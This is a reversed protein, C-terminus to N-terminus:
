PNALLAVFGNIDGFNVTGDLDIDGNLWNCAPYVTYYHAEGALAQVLGNIDGFTVLGDCDLDGKVWNQAVVGWLEVDDINWGPYNASGDTPGMGWRVYVTAQQDAVAALSFVQQSWASDSITTTPNSWITTWSTGNSSAALDAHDFTASEVGLWRWFRLEVGTVAACNLATTTLYYVPMSATYDGTLNYGYANTGTHGGNPDRNHTGGGTPHGYAWQGQTTWGPNTDLPFWYVQQPVAAMTLSIAALNSDGGEPPVGGDNAKFQFSDSGLYNRRPTYIVHNGGAVLTYPVSGIVGAGPDSLTGHTPLTAILYTLAGPPIPYGDDSASLTVTVPTSM